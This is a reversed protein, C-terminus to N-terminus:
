KTGGELLKDNTAELKRLAAEAINCLDYSHQSVNIHHECYADHDNYISRLAEVAIELKARLADEIPRTNWEKEDLCGFLHCNNECDVYNRDFDGSNDTAIRAEKGCFPCPKLEM